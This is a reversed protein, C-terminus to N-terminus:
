PFIGRSLMAGTVRAIGEVLAASRMDLRSEEARTVVRSFADTLMGRLRQNIQDLAWMFNQTGQVWEFYSVTVGGANALIDPLIFVGNAALIEDAELTTPGNAGEALIRCRVRPANDRTIQNQLACPALIDCEIELLEENSIPDADPYGELFRHEAAWAEVAPIDLGAPNHIGGSVDSVALVRVGDQAFFRAAHSGVNGFGQVVASAGDLAMGLHRAAEEVCYVVGRGTAENRGLSGGLEVPKGTVVTPTSFGVQHSYTDLLWAMTQPDTGMDPAPIDKDPGIIPFIESTYRRTLRQKESRSLYYPDVRVGGKAGGYPLHMLACKWTMWMALASVEGLSVDPAYRIGGKTPGMGLVHQVRYGFVTEVVDRKDRRFPFSVVLSRQPFLLRQRVNDDLDMIHAAKLFQQQSLRFMPSNWEATRVRTRELAYRIARILAPGDIEDETLYDQAGAEVARAALRADDVDTLIVIPLEPAAAQVRAFTDMAGRGDPLALELLIVDFPRDQLTAIAEALTHAAVPEFTPRTSEGLIQDILAAQAPNDEVTLVRIRAESM